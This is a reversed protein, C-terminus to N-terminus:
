DSKAVSEEGQQPKQQKALLRMLDVSDHLKIDQILEGLHGAKTASCVRVAVMSSSRGNKSEGIGDFDLVVFFRTVGKEDRIPIQCYSTNGLARDLQAQELDIKWM